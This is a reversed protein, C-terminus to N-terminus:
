RVRQEAKIDAGERGVKVERGRQEAQLWGQRAGGGVAGTELRQLSNFIDETSATNYVLSLIVSVARIPRLPFLLIIFACVFPIFIWLFSHFQFLSVMNINGYWNATENAFSM